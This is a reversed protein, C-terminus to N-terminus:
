DIRRLKIGDHELTACTGNIVVTTVTPSKGAHVQFDLLYITAVGGEEGWPCVWVGMTNLGGGSSLRYWADGKLELTLRQEESEWVYGGLFSPASKCGMAVLIFLYVPYINKM